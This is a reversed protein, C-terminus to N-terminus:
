LAQGSYGGIRCLKGSAQASAEALLAPLKVQEADFVYEHWGAQSQLLEAREL